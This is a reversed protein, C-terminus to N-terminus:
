PNRACRFGIDFTRFTPPNYGRRGVRVGIWDSDWSGGRLVKEAGSAPGPPNDPPESFYYDANYWDSVWERVNGAMNLTGYPSAGRPYEGVPTTTGM